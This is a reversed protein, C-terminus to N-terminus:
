IRLAIRPPSPPPAAAKVVFPSNFSAIKGIRLPVFIAGAPAPTEIKASTVAPAQQQAVCCPPTQHGLPARKPCHSCASQKTQEAHLCTAANLMITLLCLLTALSHLTKKM